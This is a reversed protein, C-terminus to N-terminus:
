EKGINCFGGTGRDSVNLEDGEIWSARENKAIVMQCIQDNDEILFNDKSLNMLIICVAGSIDADITGSTNVFAIGKKIALPNRPRIQAECGELLEMYLGTQSLVREILKVIIEQSINALIVMGECRKTLYEPLKHKEKNVIKVKKKNTEM